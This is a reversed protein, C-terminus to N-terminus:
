RTITIAMDCSGQWERWKVLAIVVLVIVVLVIVVLVIVVLVIVV